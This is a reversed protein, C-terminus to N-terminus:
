SCQKGVQGDGHRSALRDLLLRDREEIVLSRRADEGGGSRDDIGAPVDLVGADGVIQVMDPLAVKRGADLGDAMTEALESIMRGIPALPVKRGIESRESLAMSAGNAFYRSVM